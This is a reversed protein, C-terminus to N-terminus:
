DILMLNLRRIIENSSLARLHQTQLWERLDEVSIYDGSSDEEMEVFPAGFNSNIVPFYRDM